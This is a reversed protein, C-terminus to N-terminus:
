EKILWEKAKELTDTFFINDDTFLTIIKIMVQITITAGIIVWKQKINKSLNRVRRYTNKTEENYKLNKVNILVLLPQISSYNIFDKEADIWIKTSIEVTSNSFDLYLIKKELNIIM